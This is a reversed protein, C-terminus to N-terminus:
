YSCGTNMWTAEVVRHRDRQFSTMGAQFLVAPQKGVSARDCVAELSTGSTQKGRETDSCNGEVMFRYLRAHSAPDFPYLRCLAGPQPSLIPTHTHTYNYLYIFGDDTDSTTSVSSRSQRERDRQRLAANFFHAM